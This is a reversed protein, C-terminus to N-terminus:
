ALDSKSFNIEDLIGGAGIVAIASSLIEKANDVFVKANEGEFGL